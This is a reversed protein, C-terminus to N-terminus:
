QRHQQGSSSAQSPRRRLSMDSTWGHFALANGAPCPEPTSLILPSVAVAPAPSSCWVGLHVQWLVQSVHASKLPACICSSPRWGVKIAAVAVAMDPSRGLAAHFDRVVQSGRNLAAHGSDPALYQAGGAALLQGEQPSSPWGQLPPQRLVTVSHGRLFAAAIHTDMFCQRCAAGDSSSFDLVVQTHPLQLGSPPTSDAVLRRPQGHGEEASQLSNALASGLGSSLSVFPSVTCAAISRHLAVDARDHRTSCSAEPGARAADIFALAHMGVAGDLNASLISSISRHQM